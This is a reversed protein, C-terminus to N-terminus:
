HGSDVSPVYIFGEDAGGIPETKGQLYLLATYADIAVLEFGHSSVLSLINADRRLFGSYMLHLERDLGICAGPKREVSTLDIGLFCSM